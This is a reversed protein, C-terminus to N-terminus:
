KYDFRLTICIECSVKKGNCKAADWKIDLSKFINIIEKEFPTYRQLENKSKIRFLKPIGNADVIFCIPIQTQLIAEEKTIGIKDYDIMNYIRDVLAPVGDSYNPYIEVNEYIYEQLEKNYKVTCTHITDVPLFVNQSKCQSSIFLIIIFLIYKM